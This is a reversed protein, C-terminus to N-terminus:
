IYNTSAKSLIALVEIISQKLTCACSVVTVVKTNKKNVTFCHTLYKFIQISYNLNVRELKPAILGSFM